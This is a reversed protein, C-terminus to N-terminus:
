TKEHKISKVDKDPHLITMHDLDLVGELFVLNDPQSTAHKVDAATVVRRGGEVTKKYSMEAVYEIFMETSKTMLFAAEQSTLQVDPDIRMITRIKGPPLRTHNNGGGGPSTKIVGVIDEDDAIDSGPSLSPSPPHPRSM